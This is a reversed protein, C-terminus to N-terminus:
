SCINKVAMNATRYFNLTEACTLYRNVTGGFHFLHTLSTVSVGEFFRTGRVLPQTCAWNPFFWNSNNIDAGGLRLKGIIM